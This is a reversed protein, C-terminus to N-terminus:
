VNSSSLFKEITKPFRASHLCVVNAWAVAQPLAVYEDHSDCKPLPKYRNSKKTPLFCRYGANVLRELHVGLRRDRGHIEFIYMGVRGADIWHKAGDAVYYDHGETDTLLIDIYEVSPDAGIADDLTTVEIDIKPNGKGVGKVGFGATEVAFPQQEFKTRGSRSTVAALKPIFEIKTRNQLLSHAPAFKEKLFGIHSEIPDFAFIKIRQPTKAHRVPTLKEKCDHCGGCLREKVYKSEPATLNKFRPGAVFEQLWKLHLQPSWGTKAGVAVMIAGAVYGKNFGVDVVVWSHNNPMEEALLHTM